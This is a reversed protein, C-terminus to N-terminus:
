AANQGKSGQCAQPRQKGPLRGVLGNGRVGVIELGVYLRQGARLKGDVHHGHGAALEQHAAGFAFGAV